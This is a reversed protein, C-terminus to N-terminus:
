GLTERESERERVRERETSVGDLLPKREADSTRAPTRLLVYMVTGLM